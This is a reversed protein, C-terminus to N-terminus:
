TMEGQDSILRDLCQRTIRRVRKRARNFEKEIDSYSINKNFRNIIQGYFSRLDTVIILEKDKRLESKKNNSLRRRRYGEGHYGYNMRPHWEVILQELLFDGGNHVTKGEQPKFELYKMLLASIMAESRSDYAIQPNNDLIYRLM